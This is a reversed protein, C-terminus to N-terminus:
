RPKYHWSCDGTCPPPPPPPVSGGAATTQATLRISQFTTQFTTCIAMYIPSSPNNCETPSTTATPSQVAWFTPSISGTVDHLALEGNVATQTV